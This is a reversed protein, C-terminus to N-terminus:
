GATVAGPLGRMAAVEEILEQMMPSPPDLASTAIIVPEAAADDAIDLIALPRGDYSHLAAPRTYSLGVGLGNGAMSRMTELSAARHVVRPSLGRQRFLDIMHRVSLGQDALVLPQGALEALTVVGRAALPHDHAVVAHPSVLAIRRRQFSEDLGLDYTVAFDIRSCRVEESLMEFGGVRISVAVDPRRSRLHLLMPALVMPALDDFCGIVVPRRAEPHVADPDVLREVAALLDAAEELFGRGFSTPVFSSGKRRVFLPRGLHGELQAVAVSLAPQSIRLAEAAAVVGGHRGIAVAYELQRLTVSLM